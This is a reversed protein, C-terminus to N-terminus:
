DRVSWSLGGDTERGFDLDREGIGYNVRDGAAGARPAPLISRVNTMPM